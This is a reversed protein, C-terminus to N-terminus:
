KKTSLELLKRERRAVWLPNTSPRITWPYVRRGRPGNMRRPEPDINVTERVPPNPDFTAPPRLRYVSELLVWRERDNLRVFELTGTRCLYNVMAPAAGLLRAAEQVSVTRREGPGTKVTM